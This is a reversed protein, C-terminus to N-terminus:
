GTTGNNKFYGECYDGNPLITVGFGEISHSIKNWEGTFIRGDYFKFPKRLEL